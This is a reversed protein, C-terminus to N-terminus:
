VWSVNNFAVMTANDMHHPSTDTTLFYDLGHEALVLKVLWAIEVGYDKGIALEAQVGSLTMEKPNNIYQFPINRLAFATLVSKVVQTSRLDRNIDLMPLADNLGNYDCVLSGCNALWDNFAEEVSMKNKDQM